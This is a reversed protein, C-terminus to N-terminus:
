HGAHDKENIKGKINNVRDYLCCGPLEDYVAKDAKFKETDHGVGAIKKQLQEASIKKRDFKITMVKSDVDWHAMSVAPGKVSTEIRNRCMGCNGAVKFSTSDSQAFVAMSFTTFLTVLLVKISKM